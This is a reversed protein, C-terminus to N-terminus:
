RLGLKAFIGNVDKFNADLQLTKTADAKAGGIDNAFFKACARNYYNDATAASGNILKDYDAIAEAFKSMRLYTYGRTQLIKNTESPSYILATDLAAFAADLNINEQIIAIAKNIYIRGQKSKTAIAKDYMKIADAFQGKMALLNGMGEYIAYRDTGGDQLAAQFQEMALDTQNNKGYRTGLQEYAFDDKPYIKQVNKWLAISDKWTSIQQWTLGAFVLAIGGLTAYFATSGIKQFIYKELLLVFMMTWGIYPLYTYRDAMIVIGVSIFQLVLVITFFHFGIGFTVIKERRYAWVGLGLALLMFLLGGTYIPSALEVLTPYPYFTSLNFPLLFKIFYMLYGYGAFQFKQFYTFSNSASIAVPADKAVDFFGHFNGGAQVNLAILGFLLAGLWLPTKELITKISFVERNYWYDILLLIIPLVVGQAKSLCSLLFLIVVLWYSGNISHDNRTNRTAWICAAWLFFLSYLVDKRESIWVVSEVRMPHIAWLLAVFFAGWRNGSTLTMMLRLVLLVNIIHIFVNTVIFSTANGGFLAKNMALSLMTIPHYNLSVPTAFLKGWQITPNLLPNEVVYIYDDWDVFGNDFARGFVILTLLALAIQFYYNKTKDTPSKTIVDAKPATSKKTFSQTPKHPKNKM